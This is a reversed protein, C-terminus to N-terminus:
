GVINATITIQRDNKKTKIQLYKKKNKKKIIEFSSPIKKRIEEEGEEEEIFILFIGEKAIIPLIINIARSVFSKDDVVGTASFNITKM